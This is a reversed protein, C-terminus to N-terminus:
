KVAEAEPLVYGLRRLGKKIDALSKRGFGDIALMAEEGDALKEIFEGANTIKVKALSDIARKGVSLDTLLRDPSVKEAARADIDSVHKDRAEVRKMFREVQGETDVIRQEGTFFPHCNSCIDVNMSEKTSGVTWSEGCACTIVSDKYYTPHIEKKM